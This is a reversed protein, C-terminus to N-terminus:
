FRERYYDVVNGDVDYFSIAGDQNSVVIAFPKNSDIEIVKIDHGNDIELREVNQANMSIYAVGNNGLFQFEAISDEVIGLSGGSRFFYGFSLGAHNLYVSFVHSSQDEPYSIFAAMDDSYNGEIMWGDNIKQSIGIDRKLNKPLVGFCNSFVIPIMCVIALIVMTRIKSDKLM